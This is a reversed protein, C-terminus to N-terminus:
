KRRQKTQYRSNNTCSFRLVRLYEMLTISAYLKNLASAENVAIEAHKMALKRKEEKKDLSDGDNVLTKQRKQDKTEIDDDLDDEEVRGRKLASTSALTLAM